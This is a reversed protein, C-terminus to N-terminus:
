SLTSQPITDNMHVVGSAVDLGAVNIQNHQNKLLSKQSADRSKMKSKAFTSADPGHKSPAFLSDNPDFKEMSAMRSEAMRHYSSEDQNM